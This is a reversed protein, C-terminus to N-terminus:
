SSLDRWSAIEVDNIDLAEIAKMYNLNYTMTVKGNLRAENGAWIGGDVNLRNGGGNVRFNGTSYIAGAIRGNGEITTDESDSPDTLVNGVVVFFGGITGINGRLILDTTIYNVNPIGTTPDAPNTPPRYWFSNPFVGHGNGLRAADYINGQAEAMDYLKQYSLRPLPDTKPDYTITGNVNGLNGSPSEDGHRVKGIVQFADGNFDMEKSAWIVNDYFGEPISQEVIVELLRNTPTALLNSTGQTTLLRRDGLPEVEVSYTGQGLSEDAYGTAWDYDIRLQDLAQDIGAEALYLAQLSAEVRKAARIEAVAQAVLAGSLILLVVVGMYLYLLVFGRQKKQINKM